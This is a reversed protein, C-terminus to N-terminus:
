VFRLSKFLFFSYYFSNRIVNLDDGAFKYKNSRSTIARGKERTNVRNEIVLLACLGIADLNCAIVLLNTSSTSNNLAQLLVV